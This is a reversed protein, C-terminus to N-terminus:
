RVSMSLSGWQVCSYLLCALPPHLEASKGADDAKEGEHLKRASDQLAVVRWHEGVDCSVEADVVCVDVPELPRLEHERGEDHRRKRLESVHEAVLAHQK